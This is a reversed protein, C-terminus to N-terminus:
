PSPLQADQLHDKLEKWLHGHHGHSQELHRQLSRLMSVSLPKISGRAALAIGEKAVAAAEKSHRVKMLQEVLQEFTGADPGDCNPLSKVEELAQLAKEPAGNHFCASILCTCLKSDLQMSGAKSYRRVEAFAKELQKRKGWMKVTISLTFNSVAIGSKTMEQILQDCLTFRSARVAGDLITNYMVTDAKVGKAVMAEFLQLAGDLDGKMCHGKVLSSYTVTNPQVGDKEMRQLLGHARELNGARAQADILTSYAVLNMGLGYSKLKEYMDMAREADGQAAFGKILNSIIITNPPVVIRWEEFLSVAEEVKGSSVIADLMCSLAVDSPVLGRQHKDTMEHWVTWCKKTQQLCAYAKILLGYNQVSPKMTVREFQRLINALRRTDKLHICADLVTNLLVEDKCVDVKSNDLVALARQAEPRKPAKRVIKLLICVTFSDAPVDSNQMDEYVSWAQQFSGASVASSIVCNFTACNPSFGNAKMEQILQKARDFHGKAAHGKMLTNYTVLTVVNKQLMEQFITEALDTEGNSMCVDLVCNYVSAEVNDAKQQWQRLLGVARHVDHKQGASRILWIYNQVDNGQPQESAVNFLRESLDERGCKVAFKMLCGYMVTDPVIGDEIVDYYLDCARSLMDGTVYVKMLTKYTALSTMKRDRLYAQVAEALRIHHAEGCRSLLLGCFGESLFMKRDVMEQLLAVAAAEDHKSMLKLLPELVSFSLQGQERARTELSRATEVDEHKLCAVMVAATADVPLENGRLAELVKDVPFDQNCAALMASATTGQVQGDQLERLYQLALSKHGGELFGRIAVNISSVKEEGDLKELAIQIEAVQRRLAFNQLILKRIKPTVSSMTRKNAELMELFKQALEPHGANLMSSVLSHVTGPRALAFDSLYHVMDILRDPELKVMAEVVVELASVQLHHGNMEEWKMLVEKHNGAEGEECIKRSLPCRAPPSKPSFGTKGGKSDRAFFRSPELKTPILNCRSALRFLLFGAGFWVAENMCSWIMAFVSMDSMDAESATSQQM